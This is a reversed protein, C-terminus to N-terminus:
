VGLETGIKLGTGLHAVQGDTGVVGNLIAMPEDPASPVLPIRVLQNQLKNLGLQTHLNNKLVCEKFSNNITTIKKKVRQILRSQRRNM